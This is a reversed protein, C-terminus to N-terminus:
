GHQKAFSRHQKRAQRGQRKNALVSAIGRAPTQDRKGFAGFQACPLIRSPGLDEEVRAAAAARTHHPRSTRRRQSMWSQVRGMWWWTSQTWLGASVSPSGSGTGAKLHSQRLHQHQHQRLHHHLRQQGDLHMRDTCQPRCHKHM